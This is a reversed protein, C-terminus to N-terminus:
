RGVVRAVADAVAARALAMEEPGPGAEVDVQSIRVHRPGPALRGGLSAVLEGVAAALGPPATDTSGTSLLVCDVGDLVGPPLLDFFVKLVGSYSGRYVPTAVLLVEACAVSQIAEAVSRHQGRGLLAEADVRSLEIVSAREVGAVAGAALQGTPSGPFASADIAVLRGVPEAGEQSSPPLVPRHRGATM